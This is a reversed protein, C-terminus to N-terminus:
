LYRRLAGIREIINKFQEHSIMTLNKEFIISKLNLYLIVYLVYKKFLM